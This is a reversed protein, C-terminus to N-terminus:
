GEFVYGKGKHSQLRAAWKPGLKGRLASLTVNLTHEWRDSECGWVAEWLYAQSHLLGPRSLFVRLLGMEKRTLHVAVGDLTLRDADFDLALGPDSKTLRAGLTMDSRRALSRLRALLVNWDFPKVLYDDSGSELAFVTEAPSSNGTVMLIGVARTAAHARLAKALSAGSIGPLAWDLIALDVPERRLIDLAREGDPVISASFEEPRREFFRRYSERQGADDEVVLVRRGKAGTRKM